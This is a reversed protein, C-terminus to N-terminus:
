GKKSRVKHPGFYGGLLYDESVKGQYIVDPDNISVLGSMLKYAARLEKWPLEEIRGTHEMRKFGKTVDITIQSATDPYLLEFRKWVPSLRPIYTEGIDRFFRPFNNFPGIFQDEIDELPRMNALKFNGFLDRHRLKIIRINVGNVVAELRNM